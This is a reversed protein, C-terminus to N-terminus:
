TTTGDSRFLNEATIEPAAPKVPVPDPEPEVVPKPKLTGAKIARREALVLAKELDAENCLGLTVPNQPKINAM